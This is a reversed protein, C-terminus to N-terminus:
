ISTRKFDRIFAELSAADKQAPATEFGSNLDIGAWRPHHLAQLAELHEAKIGGSLLFPVSGTYHDLLSWDFRKGSGGYSVCATDFLFYDCIGEYAETQKFDEATAISFAKVIKTPKEEKEEKKEKEKEEEEEQEKENEKTEERQELRKLEQKLDECFAPTEKGHLQIVQLGFQEKRQLIEEVSANVFVGVRLARQPLYAPCVEVYRPSRPFFIFGMWEAGAEEVQRINEAERMGCVKVIM